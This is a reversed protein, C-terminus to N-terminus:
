PIEEGISRLVSAFWIMAYGIPDSEKKLITLLNNWDESLKGLTCNSPENYPDYIENKDIFWYLDNPIEIFEYGSEDIYDCLLNALNRLDAVHIKM